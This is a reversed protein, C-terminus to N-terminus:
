SFIVTFMNVFTDSGNSDVFLKGVFFVHKTTISQGRDQARQLAEPSIERVESNSLTFLGFDIVDLKTIQGNSVEFFQGFVRNNQSSETFYVTQAFGTREQEDIERKLDSYSLIARQGIDTFTGLNTGVTSGLQPKNIPPLFQYNPLHSLRKDAFLSEIHDINGVAVQSNVPVDEGISFEIAKPFLSFNNFRNDFPDEPSLLRLNRYNEISSGLLENAALHFGSGTIATQGGGYDATFLQGYRASMMSGSVPRLEKVSLKGSDDSEFTISDQPLNGVELSIRALMDQSGSAYTDLKDYFMGGDSFSYFEARMKGTSAQRRGETTYVTDLIRSKQDLIGAM